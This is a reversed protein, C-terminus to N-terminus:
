LFAFNKVEITIIRRGKWLIEAGTPLEDGSMRIDLHLADDAYSDDISILLGDGNKGCSTLYGSRLTHLLVWPASVPTIQGEALVDFALAKEDFTLAGGDESIEGTIGAISGPEAISFRLNGDKDGECNMGFSFTKEGFDATVTATFTCGGARLLRERFAIARDLELNKRACGSLFVVLVALALVRKM